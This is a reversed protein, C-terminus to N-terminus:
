TKKNNRGAFTDTQSHCNPCLIRLNEVRNDVRIGNIHDLQLVLAKNNWYKGTGCMSCTDGLIGTCMVKRRLHSVSGEYNKVLMDEIPILYKKDKNRIFPNFHSTDIQLESIRKKVIDHNRGVNRFGFHKLIVGVGPSNKVLEIFDDDPM